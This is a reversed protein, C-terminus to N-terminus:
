LLGILRAVVLSAMAGIALNSIVKEMANVGKEVLGGGAHSHLLHIFHLDNRFFLTKNKRNFFISVKGCLM